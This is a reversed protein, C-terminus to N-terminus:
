GGAERLARALLDGLGLERAWHELYERDLADSQVQLVGIADRWQRESIENGLRYWELKRLVVDEATALDYARSSEDLSKRVVRELSTRDYLGGRAIFVDVKMMTELHVLNFSARRAIADRIMDADVYFASALASVFAEVDGAGLECVIDVDITSRPVGLASSAVSGGVRYRRGLADLADVVPGLARVIDNM